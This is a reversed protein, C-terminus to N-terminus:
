MEGFLGEFYRWTLLFLVLSGAWIRSQQIDSPEIKKKCSVMVLWQIAVTFFAWGLLFGFLVAM